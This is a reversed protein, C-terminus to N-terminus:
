AAAPTACPSACRRRSSSSASADSPVSSEAPSRGCASRRRAAVISRGRCAHGPLEGHVVGAQAHRAPQAPRRKPHRATGAPRRHRDDPAQRAAIAVSLVSAAALMSITKMTLNMWVRTIGGSAMRAGPLKQECFTPQYGKSTLDAVCQSASSHRVYRHWVFVLDFVLSALWWLYFFLVGGIVIPWAEVDNKATMLLEISLVAACALGIAPLLRVGYRPFWASLTAGVAAIATATLLVGTTEPGRWSVWFDWGAFQSGLALRSRETVLFGYAAMSAALAAAGTLWLRWLGTLRPIRSAATVGVLLLSTGAVDKFIALRGLDPAVANLIPRYLLYTALFLLLAVVAYPLMYSVISALPSTGPRKTPQRGTPLTGEFIVTDIFHGFVQDDQWYDGHAKGPLFSRSFSIEELEFCANFGSTKLWEKTQALEYAIPDGYDMYNKWPIKKLKGAAPRLGSWLEPWFLQHTEIPSGITMLGKVSKIWPHKEPAALAQLLALFTVVTGESHAVLYLEVDGCPNGLATVRNMVEDFRKLIEDRRAPFDAVIQVDGVFDRMLAGLSFTFLGAKSAVFNLRELIKVTEVMEDLVTILRRQERPPMPKEMAAARQALRHTITRGWRKTEELQFGKSAVERPIAPGTCKPSPWIRWRRQIRLLLWRFSEARDDLCPIAGASRAHRRRPVRVASLGCEACHRYETQEGIGHIAVIAKVPM